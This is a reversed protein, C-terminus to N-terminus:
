GDVGCLQFRQFRACPCVSFVCLLAIGVYLYQFMCGLGVAAQGVGPKRVVRLFFFCSTKGRALIIRQGARAPKVGPVAGGPGDLDTARSGNVFRGGGNIM